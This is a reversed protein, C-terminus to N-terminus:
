GNLAKVGNPTAVVVTKGRGATKGDVKSVYGLDRLTSYAIAPITTEGKAAAALYGKMNESLAM